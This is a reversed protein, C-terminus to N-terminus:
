WLRSMTTIHYTACLLATLERASARGAPQDSLEEAVVGKPNCDLWHDAEGTIAAPFAFLCAEEM